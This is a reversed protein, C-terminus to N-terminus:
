AGQAPPCCHHAFLRHLFAPLLQKYTGVFHVMHQRISNEVQQPALWNYACPLWRLALGHRQAILNLYDQEPYGDDVFPGRLNGIWVRAAAAPIYLMGVNFYPGPHPTFGHNRECWNRFRDDVEPMGMDQVVAMREDAGEFLDPCSPMILQDADLLLMACYRSQAALFRMAELKLWAEFRGFEARREFCRFELFDANVRAAYARMHPVTYDAYWVDGVNITAVLNVSV